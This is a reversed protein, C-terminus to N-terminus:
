KVVTITVRRNQRRGEPTDNTAVPEAEGKGATQVRERALGAQMLFQEASNARRVSLGQNYTETGIADTHGTLEVRVDGQTYKEFLDRLKDQAQMSLEDSDFAFYISVTLPYVDEVVIAEKKANSLDAMSNDEETPEMAEREEETKEHFVVPTNKTVTDEPSLIRSEYLDALGGKRNSTFLVTSDPYFRFAADFQRSNIPSGLNQPKSWQQWGDGQRESVFIDSDGFGGHGNSAFYLYRQDDSLFPTIEFGDTNIMPGMNAFPTWSGDAGKTSVYLDEDYPLSQRKMSVIIVDEDDNVYANYFFGDKHLKPIDLDKPFDWRGESKNAVSIGAYKSQESKYSNLLYVREGDASFGLIANNGKNNLNLLGNRASQWSGDPQRHAYWIDHGSYKGGLNDPHLVRVFYLTQGDKSLIPQTEEAESNVTPGLEKPSRFIAPVQAMLQVSLLMVALSLLLKHLKM